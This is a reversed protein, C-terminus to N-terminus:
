YDNKYPYEKLLIRGSYTWDSDQPRYSFRIYPNYSTLRHYAINEKQPYYEYESGFQIYGGAFAPFASIMMLATFFLICPRQYNKM